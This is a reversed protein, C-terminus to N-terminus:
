WNFLKKKEKKPASSGAFNMTGPKLEYLCAYIGLGENGTSMILDPNGDPKEVEMFWKEIAPRMKQTYEAMGVSSGLCHPKFTGLDPCDWEDPKVEKLDEPDYFRPNHPSKRLTVGNKALANVMPGLMTGGLGMKFGMKWREKTDAGGMKPDTGIGKAEFYYYKSM